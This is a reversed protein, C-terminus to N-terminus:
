VMGDREEKNCSGRGGGNGAVVIGIWVEFERM